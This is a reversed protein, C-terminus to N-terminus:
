VACGPQRPRPMYTYVCGCLMHVLCCMVDCICSIHYYERCQASVSLDTDNAVFQGGELLLDIVPHRGGEIEVVQEEVM